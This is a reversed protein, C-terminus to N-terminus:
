SRRRVPEFYRRARARRWRDVHVPGYSAGVLFPVLIAACDHAADADEAEPGVGAGDAGSSDFAAVGDLDDATVRGLGLVQGGLEAAAGRGPCEAGGRGAVDDDEGHGVGAGHRDDSLVPVRQGALDDDVDGVGEGGGVVGLQDGRVTRGARLLDGLGDRRARVDHLREVGDEGVDQGQAARQVHEEGAVVRLGLRAHRREDLGEPQARKSTPLRSIACQSSPAPRRIIPRAPWPAPNLMARPTSRDRSLAGGGVERAVGERPSGAGRKTGPPVPGVTGRPGSDDGGPENMPM